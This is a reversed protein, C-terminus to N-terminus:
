RRVPIRLRQGPYIVSRTHLSNLSLLDTLAVGYASAIKILTEGRNVSHTLFEPAGSEGEEFIRLRQDVHITGDRSRIGNLERLHELGVGYMEAITWLSDGRRVVYFVDGAPGETVVPTSAEDPIWVELGPPLAVNREVARGRWAPNAAALLGVDLKYLQALRGPSTPRDLRVRRLTLSPEPTLGEPFFRLPDLAIDRAALFEAYFNRSAFGFARGDYHSLIREFDAGHQEKARLMGQVGHNYATVALPWEGLAEYADKLHRAAGHAALVPDLREDVSSSIILYRRGTGRTFQWAGLAGASSRAHTQFSSEVHPLLALDEPLGLERFAERLLAEYRAGIELGRRFRERQGRQTRVREHAERVGDTGRVGAIRLALQKAPEDLEAGSEIAQALAELKTKWAERLQKVFERQEDTYREEVVGPLRVVEYVLQPHDIDHVVIDGLTWRAYVHRWFEVNPELVAFRPFEDPPEAAVAPLACALALIAACLPIVAGRRARRVRM